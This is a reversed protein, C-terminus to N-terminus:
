SMVVQGFRRLCDSTFDVADRQSLNFTTEVAGLLYFTLAEILPEPDVGDVAADIKGIIEVIEAQLQPPMPRPHSGKRLHSFEARFRM